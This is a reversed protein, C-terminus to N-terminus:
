YKLYLFAMTDNAPSVSRLMMSDENLILIDKQVITGDNNLTLLSDNTLEWKLSDSTSTQQSCLVDGNYKIYHGNEEYVLSDDLLCGPVSYSTQQGNMLLYFQADYKWPHSMIKQAVPNIQNTDEPKVEDESCGLALAFILIVFGVGYKKM